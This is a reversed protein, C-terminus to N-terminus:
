RKFDISLMEKVTALAGDGFKQVIMDQYNKNSYYDIFAKDRFEMVKRGTIHKTDLPKAKEGYYNYSEWDTNTKYNEYLKSGPFPMTINFVSWEANIEKAFELTEKMTEMDDEPLGFMYNGQLYIGADKIKKIGELMSTKNLRKDADGRVRNNASEIGVALWNIGARKMKILLDQPVYNLRAYAWINLKYDRDILYDCIKEVHERHFVFLEDSIKLNVPGYKDVLNDLQKIAWEPSWTRYSKTLEFAESKRFPAQICCFACDYPCGLSTYISVYPKDKWQPDLGLWNHPRSNSIDALDWYIEPVTKDLDKVLPVNSTEIVKGDKMYVLNPVENLDKSCYLQVISSFGESDCVYDAGTQKLSLEPLVAVHGGVLLVKIDKLLKCLEIVYPMLQTSASPNQGYVVIAVLKPKITQIKEACDEPSLGLAHADLIEVPIGADKAQSALMLAWIPPEKAALDGLVGYHPHPNIFLIM